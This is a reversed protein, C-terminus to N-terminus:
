IKSKPNPSPPVESQERQEAEKSLEWVTYAALVMLMGFALCGFRWDIAFAVVLLCLIGTIRFITATNQKM